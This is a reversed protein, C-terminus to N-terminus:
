DGEYLRPFALEVMHNNTDTNTIWCGLYLPLATPINTTHTAVQTWTINDQSFWFDITTATYSTSIYFSSYDNVSTEILNATFSSGDGSSSYLSAPVGTSTSYWVFGYHNSANTPFNTYDVFFGVWFTQNDTLFSPLIRASWKWRTGLYRQDHYVSGTAVHGSTSNITTGTYVNTNHKGIYYGGTGTATSNFGADLDYSMGLKPEFLITDRLTSPIITEPQYSM